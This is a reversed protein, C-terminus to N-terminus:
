PIHPIYHCRNFLERPMSFTIISQLMINWKLQIITKILKHKYSQQKPIGNAMCSKKFKKERNREQAEMHRSYNFKITHGIQLLQKLLIIQQNSNNNKLYFTSM